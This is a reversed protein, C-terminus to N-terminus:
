VEVGCESLATDSAHYYLSYAQQLAQISKRVQREMVAAYLEETGGTESGAIPTGSEALRSGVAKKHEDAREELLEVLENMHDQFLEHIRMTRDHRETESTM